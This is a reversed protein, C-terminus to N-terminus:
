QGIKIKYCCNFKEGIALQNNGAKDSFDGKFDAFDAHGFWPELCLFPAGAEPAWIGWYPFGEAKVSITKANNKSKITITDSKLEDFILVGNKFTDQSLPLTKTNALYAKKQHKLYCEPTIKMIEATELQNFELYCDELRDKQDIPCMLAPHAGISFFITKDDLNIVQWIVKVLNEALLYTIQLSFRYPYVKLTDESYTLELTISEETKNIMKFESIRGFGHAPLQYAKQDVSYTSDVLKGVIPFLVPSRYKWYKKDGNWLYETGEKKGTISHLEAGHESVTIKITKNELTYLLLFREKMM